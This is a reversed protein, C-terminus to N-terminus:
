LADAGPNRYAGRWEVAGCGFDLVVRFERGLVDWGDRSALQPGPASSLFAYEFVPMISPDAFVYWTGDPLRPEVLLTLKGSFPNADAVTNAALATLLKEALTELDASVLLYKPVVSIPSVGDLGKQRRMALRADSLPDVDPAAGDVAQNGHEVSFLRKGDGMIPGAGAAQLLLGALQDAETDAAARGMMAAWRGFAGLDDNVIAKRSLNFLGGFTELSYGEAAEGTSLAKIEGSESVPKLRGFDGLKILSVPRFDDANRQRALLKLPSQAAQYAPVLVRNGAGTLLAPFDSTTHLARTLLEERGLMGVGKAGSRTLADRAADALSQVMYPRAADSPEAGSMRCAFAEAQRAHIVAPDDGSPGVRATTVPVARNGIEELVAARAEEITAERDILGDTFTAPLNMRTTLARIQTNTEVRTEPPTDITIEPEMGISRIIADKDAPVPVLSVEVIEWKTATRIRDGTTADRSDEWKSVRYGVSVGTLDGRAIAALAAADTVRLTAVIAGAEHRVNEVRGKIDGISSQRHSDLLPIRAGITVNDPELALREVFGARRVPAGTSLVVDVTGEGEDLTRPTLTLRRTLLDASM